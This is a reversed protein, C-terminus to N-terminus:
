GNLGGGLFIIKNPPAMPTEEKRKHM